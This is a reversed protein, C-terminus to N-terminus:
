ASPLERPSLPGAAWETLGPVSCETFWPSPNADSWVDPGIFVTKDKIIKQLTKAKTSLVTYIGGIKNCVEWSVEFLLDPLLTASSNDM